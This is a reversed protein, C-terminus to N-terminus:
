GKWPRVLVAAATRAATASPTRTPQLELEELLEVEAALAGADLV